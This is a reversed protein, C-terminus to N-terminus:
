NSICENADKVKIQYPTNAVLGTFQRLDTGTANLYNAGNDISFTYPSTGGSASVTITGDNAGFCSINTQNTVSSLPLPNVVVNIQSRPSQCGITQSVYYSITGAVATSPTPATSSGTGGSSATYWLLNSGTGSLQSAPTNQCYIVPSTVAPAAPPNCTYTIVVRGAGGAGGSNASQFLGSTRGGGGGGGPIAGPNGNNNGTQSTGGAGGTIAGAGSSGAATNSGAGGNGTQTPNNNGAGGGGGAGNGTGLGGAGGNNFGTGGAGAAGGNSRGGIGGNATVTGSPGTVSTASGNQGNANDSGTGGAGITISYTQGASVTITNVNYAGGGGGSGYNSGGFGTGASGGGGGGGGWVEVKISTVGLPVTWPSTPNVVVTQGFGTNVLFMSIFFLVARSYKNEIFPIMTSM